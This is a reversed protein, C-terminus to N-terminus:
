PQTDEVLSYGEEADCLIFSVGWNLHSVILSKRVKFQIHGDQRFQAALPHSDPLWYEPGFSALTRRAARIFQDALEEEEYTFTFHVEDDRPDIPEARESYSPTLKLDDWIRQLSESLQLLKKQQDM